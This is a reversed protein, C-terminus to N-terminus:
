HCLVLDQVTPLGFIKVTCTRVEQMSSRGTASSIHPGKFSQRTVVAHTATLGRASSLSHLNMVVSNSDGSWEHQHYLLHIATRICSTRTASHSTMSGESCLLYKTVACEILDALNSHHFPTTCPRLYEETTQRVRTHWLWLNLATYCDSRIHIKMRM